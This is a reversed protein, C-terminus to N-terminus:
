ESKRCILIFRDFTSKFSGTDDIIRAAKALEARYKERTFDQVLWSIVKIYSILAEIDKFETYGAAEEKRFITFQFQNLDKLAKALSWDKFEIEAGPNFLEIITNDCNGKVQQTIFAGGPKLIRHVEAPEYYEHRNIVLDFFDNEFPLKSDKYDSIVKVGYQKLNEEAIKVNPEYGETAYTEPPLPALTRLFEGGGTGMDLMRGAGPIYQKVIAHYDWPLPTEKMRGSDTLKSFDWGTINVENNM